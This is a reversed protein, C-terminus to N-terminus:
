PLVQVMLGSLTCRPTPHLFISCALLLQDRDFHVEKEMLNALFRCCTREFRFFFLIFYFRSECQKVQWHICEFFGSRGTLWLVFLLGSISRHSAALTLHVVRSSFCVLEKRFFFMMQVLFICVLPFPFLQPYSFSFTSVFLLLCSM